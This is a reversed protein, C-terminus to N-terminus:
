TVIQDSVRLARLAAEFHFLRSRVVEAQRSDAGGPARETAMASRVAQLATLTETIRDLSTEDPAAERMSYLLRTLDDARRQIDLWRAGADAAALAAPAEATIMAEYLASGNAYADITRTRWQAAAASRRGSSRLVWVVAGVIIVAGVLVLLVIDGSSIGGAAPASSSSPSPTPTVTTPAATTPAVTTPPVTTPAVTTPPVTTPAVTTPPVTTPAATGTAPANTRPSISATRSPALSGGSIAGGSQGCAALAGVFLIAACLPLSETLRRM